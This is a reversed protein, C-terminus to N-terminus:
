PMSRRSFGDLAARGAGATGPRIFRLPSVRTEHRRHRARVMVMECWSMLPRQWRSALTVPRGRFGLGRCEAIRFDRSGLARCLRGAKLAILGAARRGQGGHRGPGSLVLHGGPVMVECAAELLGESGDLILGHVAVLDFSGAEFPLTEVPCRIAGTLTEGSRFLALVITGDLDPLRLRNNGSACILLVRRPRVRRLLAELSGELMRTSVNRDPFHATGSQTMREDNVHCTAPTLM